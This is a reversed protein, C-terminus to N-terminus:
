DLVRTASNLASTLRLSAMVPAAMGTYYLVQLRLDQALTGKLELYSVVCPRYHHHHQM